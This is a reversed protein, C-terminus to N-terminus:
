QFLFRLFEDAEAEWDAETHTGYLKCNFHLRVGKKLLLNSLDTIDKTEEVFEHGGSGERAGWSFYISSPRRINAKAIAALLSSQTYKIYPSIVLSKSFVGSFRYQAYLAMLGGCSSGGIFTNERGSLTPYHADIFPKLDHVIFHMTSYGAAPFWKGFEPDYFPFPSYESLRDYGHHSCEVGVVILEPCAQGIHNQLHWATGYTADEDLFLNHGDFMYLVPYNKHTQMYDDPLYMHIHMNRQFKHAFVDLKLIM